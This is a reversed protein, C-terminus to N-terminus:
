ARRRRTSANAALWAEDAVVGARLRDYWPGEATLWVKGLLAKKQELHRRTRAPSRALDLSQERYREFTQNYEARAVKVPDSRSGHLVRLRDCRAGAAMQEARALKVETCRLEFDRELDLTSVIVRLNNRPLHKAGVVSLSLATRHSESDPESQALAFSKAEMSRAIRSMSICDLDREPNAKAIKVKPRIPTVNTPSASAGGQNAALHAGM